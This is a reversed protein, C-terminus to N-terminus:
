TKILLPFKLIFKTNKSELDLTLEGNHAELIGKSISLGLGTGEGINKTTFFPQMIKQRHKKPIGKGSDTISLYLYNKDIKQEILIWKHEENKLADYANNLINVLVQSIQTPNGLIIPNDSLKIKLEIKGMLFRQECLKLTEDICKKLDMELHSDTSANRSFLSLGQIIQAARKSARETAELTKILNEPVPQQKLLEMRIFKTGLLISSLPNNIEHSIGAAMEGLSSFKSNHLLKINMKENLLVFRYIVIFTVAFAVVPAVIGYWEPAPARYNEPIFNFDRCLHSLFYFVFSLLTTLTLQFKEQPSFIFFPVLVFVIYFMELDATFNSILTFYYIDLNVFFMLFLRSFNYHGRRNLYIPLLFLATAFMDSIGYFTHGQFLEVLGQSFSVFAGILSFANTLIIHQPSTHPTNSKDFSKLGTLELEDLIKKLTSTKWYKTVTLPLRLM